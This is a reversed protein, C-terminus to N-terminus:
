RTYVVVRVLTASSVRFSDPDDNRMVNFTSKPALSIAPPIFLKKCWDGIVFTNTTFRDEIIVDCKGPILYNNIMNELAPYRANSDVDDILMPIAGGIDRISGEWAPMSFCAIKGTLSDMSQPGVIVTKSSTLFAALNATYTAGLILILFAFGLRYIRGSVNSSGMKGYDGGNVGMLMHYTYEAFNIHIRDYTDKQQILRILCFTASGIVICFAVRIWLSHSSLMSYLIFLPLRFSLFLFLSFFPYRESFPAFIRWPSTPPAQKKIIGQLWLTIMPQTLVFPPSPDLQGPFGPYYGFNSWGVDITGNAVYNYIEYFYTNFIGGCEDMSNCLNVFEITQNLNISLLNYFDVFFGGTLEYDVCIPTGPITECTMWPFVNLPTVGIKLVRKPDQDLSQIQSVGWLALLISLAVMKPDTSPYSIAGGFVLTLTHLPCRIRTLFALDHQVIHTAM